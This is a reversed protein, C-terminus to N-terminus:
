DKKREQRRGYPQSGGDDEWTQEIYRDEQGHYIDWGVPDLQRVFGNMVLINNFMRFETSQLLGHTILKETWYYGSGEEKKKNLRLEIWEEGPGIDRKTTGPPYRKMISQGLNYRLSGHVWRVVNKRLQQIKLRKNLDNPPKARFWNPREMIYGLDIAMPARFDWMEHFPPDIMNGDVDKLMFNTKLTRGKSDRVIEGKENKVDMQRRHPVYMSFKGASRVWSGADASYWPFSRLIRFSSVGFAHMKLGNVPVGNPAVIPMVDDELWDIKKTASVANSPSIGIYEMRDRFVMDELYKTPEGQHFVHLIRNKEVGVKALEKVMYKYNAYSRKASIEFEGPPTNEFKTKEEGKKPKKGPISDLSVFYTICDKYRKCYNVYAERNIVKGESWAAFAGSDLIVSRYVGKLIDWYIEDYVGTSLHNYAVLRHDIVDILPPFRQEQSEGAAIYNILM